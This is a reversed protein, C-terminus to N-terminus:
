RMVLGGDVNLTQGTINDSGSSCLFLIADAVNQPLIPRKLPIRDIFTAMSEGPKAGSLKGYELDLQDWMPTVVVGPSIANVNIGYPALAMAATHTLNIIAAKSAAYHPALPRPGQGSISTINVIKGYCADAKGANKVHEPVQQVMQTAGAQM